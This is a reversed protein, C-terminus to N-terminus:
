HLTVFLINEFILESISMFDNISFFDYIINENSMLYTFGIKIVLLYIYIVQLTYGISPM